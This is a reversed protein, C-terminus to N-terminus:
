FIRDSFRVARYPEGHSTGARQTLTAISDSPVLQGGASRIYLSSLSSPDTQFQREVELIVQYQNIPTYITSIQRTGYANYLSREIQEATIGLSNAKDRDIDIMVEPNRIQLDSTVDQLIPLAALKSELVPAWEYLDKIDTGQLTYQFLGKSM